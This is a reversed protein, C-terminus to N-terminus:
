TNKQGCPALTINIETTPELAGAHLTKKGGWGWHEGMRGLKLSAIPKTTEGQTMLAWRSRPNLKGTLPESNKQAM